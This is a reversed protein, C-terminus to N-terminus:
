DPIGDARRLPVGAVTAINEDRDEARRLAYGVEDTKYGFHASAAKSSPFELQTIPRAGFKHIRESYVEENVRGWIVVAKSNGHAQPTHRAALLRDVEGADGARIHFRGVVRGQELKHYEIANM